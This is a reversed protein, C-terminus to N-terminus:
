DQSNVLEVTFTGLDVPEARDGEVVECPQQLTAIPIWRGNPGSTESYITGRIIYNGPLVDFIDFTGDPGIATAYKTDSAMESDIKDPTALRVVGMNWDIAKGADDPAMLHGRLRRGEGGVKVQTRAGPTLEIPTAHSYWSAGSDPGAIGYRIVKYVTAPGGRLKDFRFEGASNATTSYHWHSPVKLDGDPGIQLVVREDSKPREGQYVVGEVSSWPTLTIQRASQESTNALEAWGKEHLVLVTIPSVAVPLDFKGTSDTTVSTEVSYQQLQGNSVILSMQDGRLAVTAEQAPAGDPTLVVGNLDTGDELEFDIEVNGEDPMIPRSVLARYGDADVRICFKACASSMEFVFEGDKGVNVRSRQLIYRDYDADWWVGEVYKFKEIPERTERNMVKGHVRVVPNLVMTQVESLPLLSTELGIHGKKSFGYKVEDAPAENWQWYGEDDTKEDAIELSRNGRWAETYVRVGAVPEGRQDVVRLRITNGPQLEFDAAPSDNDVSLIKLDPAYGAATVTLILRGVQAQPLRYAGNEDTTVVM